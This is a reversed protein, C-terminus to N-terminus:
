FATATVVVRPVLGKFTFGSEQPEGYMLNAEVTFHRIFEYGGGILFGFGIDTDTNEEFPASLSSFGIGGNIYFTPSQPLFYYSVTATEYSHLFTIGDEGWWAGKSSYYIEIQETPAYGIKFDTMFSFKNFRDSTAFTQGIGEMEIVYSTIGAGLGGAWSLGRASATLLRM